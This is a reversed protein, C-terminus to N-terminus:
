AAVFKLVEMLLSFVSWILAAVLIIQLATNITNVSLSQQSDGLRYYGPKELQVGLAGAIASMTWGANPSETKKHDRLMMHWAASPNKRCLWAAIVIALASLRAPIFNVIDDLHAAFKGTYEYQEHYGIMSDFTNIIRYAMAGPINFLMFYLLPAVFSDCINEASSEITASMIQKENLTSTNRSVLARLSHRAQDLNNGVLFKRVHEIAKKLGRLSFTYKLLIGGTVIYALSNAGKLYLLLLYAAVSIIVTTLVVIFIGYVLQTTKRKGPIIGTQWAIFKGLWAVPHWTNPPEGLFIDLFLAIVLILFTEM